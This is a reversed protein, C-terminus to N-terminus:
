DGSHAAETRAHLDRLVSLEEDTPPPTTALDDAFRVDWGTAEAVQERTVGPHLATM